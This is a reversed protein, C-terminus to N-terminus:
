ESKSPIILVPDGSGRVLGETVSGLLWRTFGSRGRTTLAVINQSTERALDAIAAAPAGRLLKWEVDIGEAALRRAVGSLYEVADREIQRELDVSGPYPYGDAYVGYAGGIKMVRVLTVKLSLARAVAEVYPIASEALASGDLPAIIRTIPENEQWYASAREPTITLTPIHSAHIVKDTVSGLVGRGIATRGHTSMAILECGREAAVRVITEAAHGFEVIAEAETGENRLKHATAELQAKVREEINEFLQSIYPGGREHPYVHFREKPAEPSRTTVIGGPGGAPIIEPPGDSPRRSLDDPLEIADPDIVSLLVLPMGLGRSLQSVFPLIGEAMESGDLPVLARKFM